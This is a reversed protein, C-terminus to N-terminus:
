DTALPVGIARRLAIDRTVGHSRLHEFSRYAALGELIALFGGVIAALATQVPWPSPRTATNAQHDVRELSPEYHLTRLM